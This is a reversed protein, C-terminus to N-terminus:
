DEEEILSEVSMNENVFNCWKCNEEECGTMFEHNKIKEYTDKLQDGVIDMEFPEVEFKRRYFRGEKTKEVFDMIGSRMPQKLRDDGHLLLKYFVIQRWYDGGLDEEGVPGKLKAAAYRGTKYDVVEL